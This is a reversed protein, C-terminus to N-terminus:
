PVDSRLRKIQRGFVQVNDKTGFQPQLRICQLLDSVPPHEIGLVRLLRSWSGARRGGEDFREGPGSGRRGVVLARGPMDGIDGRRTVRGRRPDRRSLAGPGGPDGPGISGPLYAGYRPMFPVGCRGIASGPPAYYRLLALLVGRSESFIHSLAGPVGVAVRVPVGPATVSGKGARIGAGAGPVRGPERSFIGESRLCHSSSVASGAATGSSLRGPGRSGTLRFMASCGLSGGARSLARCLAVPAGYRAVRGPRAMPSPTAFRRMGDCEVSSYRRASGHGPSGCSIAIDGARVIDVRGRVPAYRRVRVREREPIRDARSGFGEPLNQLKQVPGYPGGIPFGARTRCSFSRPDFVLIFDPKAGRGPGVANEVVPM